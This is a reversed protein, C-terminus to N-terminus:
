QFLIETLCLNSVAIAVQASSVQVALKDILPVDAMTLNTGTGEWCGTNFATLPILVGSSMNACYLTGAPDGKRHLVARLGTAPLGTTVFSVSTYAKGLSTGDPDSANLGVQVGWNQDYDSQVPAAALAPITGTICLADPANWNPISAVCPQAFTIAHRDTDCTPDTLTDHAGLAVWGWGTMRGQAKGNSFCVNDAGLSCRPKGELDVGAEASGDWFAVDGMGNGTGDRENSADVSAVGGSGASGDLSRTGGSGGSNGGAGVSGGVSSAGGTGLPVSGGTATPGVADMDGNGAAGASGGSGGVTISADLWPADDLQTATAGRTGGTASVSNGGVSGDFRSSGGQGSPETSLQSSGCASLAGVITALSLWARM